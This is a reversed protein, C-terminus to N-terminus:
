HKKKLKSSKDKHHITETEKRPDVPKTEQKNELPKEEEEEKNDEEEQAELEEVDKADPRPGRQEEPPAPETSHIEESPDDDIIIAVAPVRSAHLITGEADKRSLTLEDDKFFDRITHGDVSFRQQCLFRVRVMPNQQM